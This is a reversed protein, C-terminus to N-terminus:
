RGPRAIDRPADRDFRERYLLVDREIELYLAEKGTRAIMKKIDELPMYRTPKGNILVIRDYKKLEATQLQSTENVSAVVLGKGEAVGVDLWLQKEKGRFAGPLDNRLTVCRRITLKVSTGPKGVFFQLADDPLMYKINKSWVATLTDNKRIHAAAAPSKDIVADVVYEGRAPKIVVGLSRRVAVLLRDSLWRNIGFERRDRFDDLFMLADHAETFDPNLDLSKQYLSQAVSFNLDTLARNGLYLYNQEPLDYFIDDILDKMILVEGDPTNLIVRDAYEEVVLGKIQQGSTLFITDAFVYTSLAGIIGLIMIAIVGYKRIM